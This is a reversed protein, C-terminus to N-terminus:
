SPRNTLSLKTSLNELSVSHKSIGTACVQYWTDYSLTHRMTDHWIWSKLWGKTHVCRHKHQRRPRVAIKLTIILLCPKCGAPLRSSVWDCPSSNGEFSYSRIPKWDIVTTTLVRTFCISYRVYAFKNSACTAQEDEVAAARTPRQSM